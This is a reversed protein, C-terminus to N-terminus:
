RESLWANVLVSGERAQEENLVLRRTVDVACVREHARPNDFWDEDYAEILERHLRAGYLVGALWSAGRPEYRPLVGALEDPVTTRLARSGLKVHTNVADSEDPESAFAARVAHLRITALMSVRMEHAQRRAAVSGVGLRRRLFPVSSLLSGFLVGYAARAADFPRLVLSSPAHERASCAAHVSAGFRTLARTFSAGCIPEPIPGPDVRMGSLSRWEGFLSRFWRPSLKAPWGERAGMAACGHLADELEWGTKAVDSMLDDTAALVLEAVRSSSTGDWPAELWALGEIGLQLAAAHRRRMWWIARESADASVRILSQAAQHRRGDHETRVLELVLARTSWPANGLGALVHDPSRRAVEVAARDEWTVREIILHALWRRLADTTPMEKPLESLQEFRERTTLGRHSVLPGDDDESWTGFRRQLLGTQLDKAARAIDRELVDPHLLM